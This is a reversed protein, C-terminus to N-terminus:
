DYRLRLGLIFLNGFGAGQRDLLLGVYDSASIGTLVSTIDIEQMENAIYSTTFALDQEQVATADEGVLAHNTTLEITQPGGTAAPIAVIAASVLNLFDHPIQWSIRFTTSSGISNAAYAGINQDPQPVPWFFEKTALALDRPDSYFSIIGGFDVMTAVDFIAAGFSEVRLELSFETAGIAMTHEVILLEYLDSGTHFSSDTSGIGDNIRIRARAGNNTKVWCWAKVKRGQVFNFISASQKFVAPTSGFTLEVATPGHKADTTLASAAGTGSLTWFDPLTGTFKLFSGNRRQQETAMNLFEFNDNWKKADPTEAASNVWVHPQNESGM